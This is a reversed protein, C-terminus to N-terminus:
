ALKATSLKVCFCIAKLASHKSENFGFENISKHKVHSLLCM